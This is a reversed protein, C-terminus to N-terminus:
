EDEDEEMGDEQDQYSTRVWLAIVSRSLQCLILTTAGLRWRIRPEPGPDSRTPAGLADTAIGALRVFVEHLAPGAGSPEAMGTMDIRMEHVDDDHRTIVIRGPVGWSNGAVLSRAPIEERVHWGLHNLL